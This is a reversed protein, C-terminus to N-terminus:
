GNKLMWPLSLYLSVCYKHFGESLSAEADHFFSFNPLNCKEDDVFAKKKKKRVL